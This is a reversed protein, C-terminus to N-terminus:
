KLPTKLPLYKIVIEVGYVYKKWGLYMARPYVGVSDGPQVKSLWGEILESGGGVHEENYYTRRDRSARVNRQIVLPEPSSSGDKHIIRAEFWTASPQFASWNDPNM